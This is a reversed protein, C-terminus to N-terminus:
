IYVFIPLFVVEYVMFEFYMGLVARDFVNSVKYVAGDVEFDFSFSQSDSAKIKSAENRNSM